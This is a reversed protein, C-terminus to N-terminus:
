RIGDAHPLLVVNGIGTFRGVLEHADVLEALPMTRTIVPKLAGAGLASTIDRAAVRLTPRALTYVILYHVRINKRLLRWFPIKPEPQADSSYTAIIGNDKLVDLNTELNVGFAVDVVRDVGQGGTIERVREVINETRYNLVHHAGCASAVAAKEPGSVTAIVRAGAWVALQVATTGVGGAGGHVLM